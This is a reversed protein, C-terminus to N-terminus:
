GDPGLVIGPVQEETKYKFARKDQSAQTFLLAGVKRLRRINRRGTDRGVSM